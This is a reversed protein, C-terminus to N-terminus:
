TFRSARRALAGSRHSCKAAGNRSRTACGSNNAFDLGDVDSFYRETQWYGELYVPVDLKLIDEDFRWLKEKVYHRTRMSAIERARRYRANLALFPSLKLREKDPASLTMADISFEDLQYKRRHDSRYASTDFILRANREHALRVGLAAMFLQNGLGGVINMCVCTM